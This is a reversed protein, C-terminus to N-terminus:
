PKSLVKPISFVTIVSFLNVKENISIGSLCPVPLMSERNMQKNIKVLLRLVMATLMNAINIGGQRTHSSDSGGILYTPTMFAGEPKQRMPLMCVLAKRLSGFSGIQQILKKM